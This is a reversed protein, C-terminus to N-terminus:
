VVKGVFINHKDRTLRISVLKEKEFPCDPLSITRDKAVALSSGVFRDPCKIVAKVVDGCQFPKPLQKAAHIDFDEKTFILKLHHKKELRQLETYFEDWSKEQAPNRGTKYNLFNQLGLLPQPSLSKVFEIIKEVETENYGPVIVPAIIVKAKTVAYRILELLHAHNYSETGAILKALTEDMANLSFNLQIKGGATLYDIKEQSLLTGNTDISITKVLELAQLDKVLPLLDGYLFPEGQTGVHVEVPEAIFDLLKKLESILYDKEVVFDNKKSKLGEGISCYICNLNCSTIPKIEILSSNRYVIGFAVNGILPLGSNQHLYITKNGTLRNTLNSLYRGLLAQFKKDDHRFDLTHEDVIVFAPMESIPIKTSFLTLLNVQLNTGKKQFTLTEFSIKPM